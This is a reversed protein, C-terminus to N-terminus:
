QDLEGGPRYAPLGGGDDNAVAKSRAMTQEFAFRREALDMDFNQRRVALAAEADARERKLQLEADTAERKIQADADVGALRVQRDTDAHYFKLQQEGAIKAAENQAKGQAEITAADPQGEPEPPLTSPDKIFDTAVGLSTDDVFARISNFAEREGVLRSGSAALQAQMGALQMRYAIRQDKSGTGLGVNIQMDPDEPWKSPDVMRYQGDIKMRFPALHRRMLRYRKGFMPLMLQEVLNRTVYLEIQDANQQLMAMGSATKNLTDPNMGQSQATVGTRADREGRIADMAAFSTPSTDNQAFPTPAVAGKYRIIAGARVTLLDDITDDTTGEQPLLTRPANSLYISDLGQRLLVSRIRQIDMTKDAMSQGTFRHAMPIPTWGSYPQEDAEKVSLVHYGIRMVDLREAIGDGNLDYLPFEHHLWLQKQVGVRQGVSHSTQGREADRASQVVSNDEASAWLPEVDEREFGIAILDSVSVPRKDGVYVAEDLEVADAAILFWENPVNLDRIVPPQEVLVTVRHTAEVPNIEAEAADVPEFDVVSYGELTLTDGDVEIAGGPAEVVTPVPRQPYAYTKTIGTKELMGAKAADHIIRYGPQKRMFQYHVAATAEAGYDIQRTAEPDEETPAPVDEPETDFEVAKGGALVTGLIGVLMIDTVEAVDRTVAQSRGEEEDGYPEGQYARIAVARASELTTDRAREAEGRLFNRFDDPVVPLM